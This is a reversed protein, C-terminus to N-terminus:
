GGFVFAGKLMKRAALIERAYLVEAPSLFKTCGLVGGDATTVIDEIRAVLEKYEQNSAMM